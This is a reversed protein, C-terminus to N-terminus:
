WLEGFELLKQAKKNTISFGDLDHKIRRLWRNVKRQIRKRTTFITGYPDPVWLNPCDEYEHAVAQDHNENFAGSFKLLHEQVPFLSGKEEQKKVRVNM